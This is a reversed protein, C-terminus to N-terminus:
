SVNYAEGKQLVQVMKGNDLTKVVKQLMETFYKPWNKGDYEPPIHVPLSPLSM